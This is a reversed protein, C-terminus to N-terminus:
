DGSNVRHGSRHSSHHDDSKYRREEKKWHGVLVSMLLFGTILLFAAIYGIWKKGVLWQIGANWKSRGLEGANVGRSGKIKARKERKEKDAAKHDMTLATRTRTHTYIARVVKWLKWFVLNFTEQPKAKKRSFGEGKPLSDAGAWRGEGGKLLSEETACDHLAYSISYYRTTRWEPLQDLRDLFQRRLNGPEETEVAGLFLIDGVISSRGLRLGTRSSPTKWWVQGNPKQIIVYKGLRYAVDHTLGSEKGRYGNGFLTGSLGAEEPWHSQSRSWTAIEEETLKKGSKCDRIEYNLCYFKTREWKPFRGLQDLFERALFGPEESESPGIFLIEGRIFCKGGVVAGIGAHAEWWLAGNGSESIRYEALRYSAIKM